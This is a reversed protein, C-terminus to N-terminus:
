VQHQLIKQRLLEFQLKVALGLFQRYVGQHDVLAAWFQLRVFRLIGAIRPDIDREVLALHGPM